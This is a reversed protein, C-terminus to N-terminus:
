LNDIATQLSIVKRQINGKRIAFSRHTNDFTTYNSRKGFVHMEPIQAVNYNNYIHTRVQVDSDWQLKNKLVSLAVKNIDAIIDNRLILMAMGGETGDKKTRTINIAHNTKFLDNIKEQNIKKIAIIDVDSVVVNQETEPISFWRALAYFGKANSNDSEYTNKIDEFTIHTNTIFNINDNQPLDLGVYHLSLECNPYFKKITHSYFHYFTNYYIPDTATHFIM